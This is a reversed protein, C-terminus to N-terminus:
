RTGLLLDFNESIWHLIKKHAGSKEEVVMLNVNTTSYSPNGNVNMDGVLYITFPNTIGQSEM